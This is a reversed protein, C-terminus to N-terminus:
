FTRELVYVTDGPLLPASLPALGEITDQDSRRTIKVQRQDARYTFGGAIAVANEVTMGSVYAFQGSRQVEGLVFFPRYTQIEVIVDPKRLYDAALRKKIKHALADTTAGRARVTGILP